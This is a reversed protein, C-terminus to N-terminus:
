CGGDNDMSKNADKTVMLFVRNQKEPKLIHLHHVTYGDAVQEPGTNDKDSVSTSSRLELSNTEHGQWIRNCACLVDAYIPQM